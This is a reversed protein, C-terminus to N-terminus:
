YNITQIIEIDTKPIKVAKSKNWENQLSFFMYDGTDMDFTNVVKKKLDVSLPLPIKEENLFATSYLVSNGIDYYLLKTLGAPSSRQNFLLMESENKRIFCTYNLEEADEEICSISFLVDMWNKDQNEKLIFIDFAGAVNCTKCKAKGIYMAHEQSCAVFSITLLLTFILYKM